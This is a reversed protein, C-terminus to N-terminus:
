SGSLRPVVVHHVLNYTYLNRRSFFRVTIGTRKEVVTAPDVVLDYYLGRMHDVKDSFLEATRHQGGKDLARLLMMSPVVINEIEMRNMAPLPHKDHFIQTQQTLLAGGPPTRHPGEIDNAVISWSVPRFIGRLSNVGYVIVGGLCVVSHLDLHYKDAPDNHRAILNIFDIKNCLLTLAGNTDDLKVGHTNKLAIERRQKVVVQQASRISSPDQPTRKDPSFNCSNRVHARGTENPVSKTSRKLSEV